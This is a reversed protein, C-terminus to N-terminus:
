GRREFESYSTYSSCLFPKREMRIRVFEIEKVNVIRVSVISSSKVIAGDDTKVSDRKVAKMVKAHTDEIQPRDDFLTYPKNIITFYISSGNILIATVKIEHGIFVEETQKVLNGKSNTQMEIEYLIHAICLAVTLFALVVLTPFGVM